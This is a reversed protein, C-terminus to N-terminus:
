EIKDITSIASGVDFRTTIKVGPKLKKTSTILRGTRHDQTLSYGRSLVGLPSLAHLKGSLATLQGQYDQLSAGMRNHLRTAREDVQRSRQHILELPRAFVPRSAIADLRNRLTAAQGVLANQLRTRYGNMLENVDQSSPVVREAAESPTLARVDAVLDALTVDIEHGVASVVPLRSAAIARVVKEENFCWLDELSGGGRCAVLVDLSPKLRNALRIGEAIEKAAGQGQVRTPFVLVEVGHWRRHMVELFDRIAAGTPSTVVGIRQPFAPLPKKRHSDFLGEKQLKERLKRLELELAGIGQPHLQDVVMQYSGRPPYVDLHGKCVVELGDQLDVKLRAATGRWIVARLQAADDKLTFYCHGSQPRSFNSMEGAVWVSPFGQEVVHKLQTTLQSVSLVQEDTQTSSDPM